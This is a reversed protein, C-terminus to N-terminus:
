YVTAALTANVRAPIPLPASQTMVFEHSPDEQVWNKPFMEMAQYGARGDMIAGYTRVLNTATSVVVVANDPIFLQKAGAADKYWGTYTWIEPGAGGFRGRFFALANAPGMELLTDSGRRTDILDKVEQFGIMKRFAGAGMIVHTAPAELRAFWDELDEIPLATGQDWKAGGALVVTKDGDRQFDVLATPYDEGSVTVSGSLLEQAVMWEERRRIKQRHTDLIDTVIADRRAQGTLTGGLQEGPRRKLVRSPSVQDKPKVYAPKFKKLTAGQEKMVKGAVMPSVFPALQMDEDVVDFDIYESEFTVVGTTLLNLLFPNFPELQGIVGALTHTDYGNM